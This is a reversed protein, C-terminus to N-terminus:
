LASRFIIEQTPYFPLPYNVSFRRLSQLDIHLDIHSISEKSKENEGISDFPQTEASGIFQFLVSSLIMFIGSSYFVVSWATWQNEINDLILGAVAPAIFGTSSGVTTIIAYTIAAYNSTIEAPLSSDCGTSFGSAFSMLFLIVHLTSPSCGVLPICMMPISVFLGTLLGFTKRTRTRSMWGKNIIFDSFYGSLIMSTASLLSMGANIFGNSSIDEHQIESLYAPIKAAAVNFGWGDSFRILAAALVARNTLIAKFPTSARKKPTTEQNLEELKAKSEGMESLENESENRSPPQNRIGLTVLVCSVGAFISPMWFIGPWGYANLVPGSTTLSTIIAVNVGVDLFAFCVSRQKPSVWKTIIDYGAPFAASHLVGLCLRLGIFLVLYDTTFPIIADIFCSGLLCGSLFWRGGFRQVLQGATSLAIIYAMFIAGFIVSQTAQSWDYVKDRLQTSDRAAESTKNEPNLEVDGTSEIVPCSGIVTKNQDEQDTTMAVIAISICANTIVTGIIGLTVLSVIFYPSRTIFGVGRILKQMKREKLTSQVM